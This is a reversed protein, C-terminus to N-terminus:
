QKICRMQICRDMNHKQFLSLIGCHSQMSMTKDPM